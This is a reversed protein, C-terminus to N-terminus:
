YRQHIWTSFSCPKTRDLSKRRGSQGVHSTLGLLFPSLAAGANALLVSLFSTPKIRSLAPSRSPTGPIFHRTETYLEFASVTLNVFDVLLASLDHHEVVSKGFSHPRTYYCRREQLSIANECYSGEVDALRSKTLM